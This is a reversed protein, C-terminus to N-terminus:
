ISGWDSIFNAQLDTLKDYYNYLNVLYRFLIMVSGIMGVWTWFSNLGTIQNFITNLCPIEVSKNVYPLNVNLPSCTKNLSSNINNLMTLPLNILSDLPGSPLWGAVDAAGSIDAEDPNTLWAFLEKIKGFIGKSTENQEDLKNTCIETDNITISGINDTNSSLYFYVYKKSVNINYTNGVIPSNNVLLMDLPDFKSILTDSQGVRLRNFSNFTLSYTINNSYNNEYVYVKLGNDSNNMSLYGSSNISANDITKIFTLNYNKCTNFQDKIVQQTEKNSDVISQQMDNIQGTIINTSNTISNNLENTQNNLSNNIDTQSVGGSGLDDIIIDYLYFSQNDGTYTTAFPFVIYNSNIKPTFAFQLTMNSAISNSYNLTCNSNNEYSSKANSLSTGVGIRNYTSLILNGGYTGEIKVTMSYTHNALLPIPSSIGWAAGSTNAQMQPITGRWSMNTFQTSVSHLSPGYNDYLQATYSNADYTAAFVNSIGVICVIAFLTLWIIFSIVPGISKDYYKM